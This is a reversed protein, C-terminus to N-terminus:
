QLKQTGEKRLSLTLASQWSMDDLKGDITFPGSVAPIKVISLDEPIGTSESKMQSCSILMGPILIVLILHGEIRNLFRKKQTM